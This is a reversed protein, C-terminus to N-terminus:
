IHQLIFATRQQGAKEALQPMLCFGHLKSNDPNDWFKRRTYPLVLVGSKSFINRKLHGDALHKLSKYSNWEM